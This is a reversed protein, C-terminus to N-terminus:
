VAPKKTFVYLAAAAEQSISFPTTCQPTVLYIKSYMLKRAKANAEDTFIGTSKVTDGDYDGNLAPLRSNSPTVTDVFYTSTQAHSMDLRVDPYSTYEVGNFNIHKTVNTSLIHVRTFFAGMHDGIPYRVMYVLRDADVIAAKAALYVVDTLTLDRTIMENKDMDMYQIQLPKTNEPDMYLVKFRSGPNNEYIHLLDAIMKDDYINHIDSSKIVGKEPHISELYNYSLIQKMQFKVLPDFMSCCSNLPYGTRFIGIETKDKNYSPASIVNRVTWLTNKALLNKQFFGNKGAVITHVFTYIDIAADQFKAHLSAVNNTTRSTISKLGLIKMYISNLENKVKKGNRTGTPRMQPPLVLVKDNFLLHKPTKTLITINDKNRSNLTKRIDIQDWIKYLDVLGTYEGDSAAVLVCNVLNCRVEGYVMKKIIGGGRMIITKAINPNFIHIPLKIYACRYTREDETQGFIEESFLGDPHYVGPTKEIRQSTVEQLNNIKIDLDIDELSQVKM